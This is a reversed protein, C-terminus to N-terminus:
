GCGCGTNGSSTTDNIFHGKLCDIYCQSKKEYCNRICNDDNPDCKTYYHDCIGDCRLLCQATDNNESKCNRIMIFYTLLITVIIVTAILLYNTNMVYM